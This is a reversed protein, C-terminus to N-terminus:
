KSGFFRYFFGAISTQPTRSIVLDGSKPNKTVTSGAGIMVDDPITVPAVFQTDSGVFVSKGIITKHKAKGDYNCTITGAGINSGEDIECDGLYSLHGAKVGHLQANKLEVFNGIHTNVLHSNPRIRAFPGADSDIITSDEVVSHAKITSRVIKSAGRIAVGSELFCEGEFTARSDIFITQPLELVVGNVMLDKKIKSQHIEEAISLEYKSNVGMLVQQDGAVCEVQSGSDVAIAVLDTIYFEKQANHNTLKPLAELLFDRDFSYVGANVTSILKESATCDKEEVIKTAFGDKIVVRGYGTPNALDTTSIAVDAKSSALKAVFESSILPMDGNLVVVRKHKPTCAMIAGGTGPFNAVDQTAISIDKFSKQIHSVVQDAQHYVVVTIDDSITQAAIISYDIMARGSLKHLIKPTQSKMRTGAGAALIVVSISM